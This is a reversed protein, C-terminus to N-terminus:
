KDGPVGLADAPPEPYMPQAGGSVFEGPAAVDRHSLGGIIAVALGAITGALWHSVEPTIFANCVSCQGAVLALGSLVAGYVASKVRDSHALAEGLAWTMMKTYIFNM